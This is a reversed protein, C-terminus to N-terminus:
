YLQPMEVPESQPSCEGCWVADAVVLAKPTQNAGVYVTLFYPYQTAHDKAIFRGCFRCVANAPKNSIWCKAGM